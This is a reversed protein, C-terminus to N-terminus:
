KRLGNKMIKLLAKAATEELQLGLKIEGGYYDFALKEGAIVWYSNNLNEIFSNEKPEILRLDKIFDTEYTKVKGRGSVDRKYVLKNNRIKIKERGSIRWM